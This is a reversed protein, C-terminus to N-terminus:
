VLRYIKIGVEAVEQVGKQGQPPIKGGEGGGRGGEGRGPSVKSSVRCQAYNLGEPRPVTRLYYMRTIKYGQSSARLMM